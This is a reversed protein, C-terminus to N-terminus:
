TVSPLNCTPTCGIADMIKRLVKEADLYEEAIERAARCHGDYDSEIADLAALIDDMTSFAFLGRGTPLSVGFATDQNIM